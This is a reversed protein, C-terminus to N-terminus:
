FQFFIEKLFEPATTKLTSQSRKKPTAISLFSSYVSPLKKMDSEKQYCTFNKMYYCPLM